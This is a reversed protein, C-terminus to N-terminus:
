RPTTAFLVLAIRPEQIRSANELYANALDLLENLSLDGRPSPIVSGFLM